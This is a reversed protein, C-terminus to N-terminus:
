GWSGNTMSQDSTTKNCRTGKIVNLGKGKGKSDKVKLTFGLNINKYKLLHTKINVVFKKHFM